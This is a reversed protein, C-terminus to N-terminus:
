RSNIVNLISAVTLVVCKFFNDRLIKLLTQFCQHYLFCNSKSAINWIKIFFYKLLIKFFKTGGAVHLEGQSLPGPRVYQGAWFWYHVRQAYWHLQTWGVHRKQSPLTLGWFIQKNPRVTSILNTKYNTTTNIL